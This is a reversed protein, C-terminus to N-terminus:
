GKKYTMPKSSCHLQPVRRTKGNRDYLHLHPCSMWLEGGVVSFSDNLPHGAVYVRAGIRFRWPYPQHTEDPRPARDLPVSPIIPM